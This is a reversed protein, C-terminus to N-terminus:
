GGSGCSAAALRVLRASFKAKADAAYSVRADPGYPAHLDSSVNYCYPLLLDLVESTEELVVLPLGATRVATPTDCGSAADLMGGFARCNVRLFASHCFCEHGDSTKLVIDAPGAYADAPVEFHKIDAKVRKAPPEDTDAM